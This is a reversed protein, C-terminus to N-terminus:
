ITKEPLSSIESLLDLLMALSVSAAGEDVRAKERFEKMPHILNRPARLVDTISSEKYKRILGNECYFFVLDRLTWQNELDSKTIDKVKGRYAPISNRASDMTWAPNRLLYEYLAAELVSGALVIASKWLQLKLCEEAQQLDRDLIDRLRDDMVTPFRSESVPLPTALAADVADRLEGLAGMIENADPKDSREMWAFIYSQGSLYADYKEEPISQAPVLAKLHWYLDAFPGYTHHYYKSVKEDPIFSLIKRILKLQERDM